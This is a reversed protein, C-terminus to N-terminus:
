RRCRRGPGATVRGLAASVLGRRWHSRGPWHGVGASCAWSGGLPTVGIRGAVEIGGSGDDCAREIGRVQGDRAERHESGCWREAAAPTCPQPFGDFLKFAAAPDDAHRRLSVADGPQPARLTCCRGPLTPVPAPSM